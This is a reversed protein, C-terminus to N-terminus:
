DEYTKIAEVFKAWAGDNPMFRDWVYDELEGEESFAEEGEEIITIDGEVPVSGNNRYVLHWGDDIDLVIYAPMDGFAKANRYEEVEEPTGERINDSSPFEGVLSGDLFESLKTSEVAKM